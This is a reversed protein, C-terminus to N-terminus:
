GTRSRARGTGCDAGRRATKRTGGEAKHNSRAAREAKRRAPVKTPSVGALQSVVDFGEAQPPEIFRGRALAERGTESVATARLPEEVQNLVSASAGGREQKLLREAESRLRRLTDSQTKQARELAEGGQCGLAGAWAACGKPLGQSRALFRFM